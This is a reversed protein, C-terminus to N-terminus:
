VEIGKVKALAITRQQWTAHIICYLRETDICPRDGDYYCGSFDLLDDSGIDDHLREAYVRKDM